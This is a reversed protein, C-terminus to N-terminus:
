SSTSTNENKIKKSVSVLVSDAIHQRICVGITNWFNRTVKVRNVEKVEIQIMNWIPISIEVDVTRVVLTRVTTSLLHKM